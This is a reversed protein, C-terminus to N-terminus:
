IRQEAAHWVLLLLRAYWSAAAAAPRRHDQLAGTTHETEGNLLGFVAWTCCCVGRRRHRQMHARAPDKSGAPLGVALPCPWVLPHVPPQFAIFFPVRVLASTHEPPLSLYGGNQEYLAAVMEPTRNKLESAIKKWARGHQRLGTHGAVGGWRLDFL